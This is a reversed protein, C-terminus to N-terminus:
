QTTEVRDDYIGLFTLRGCWFLHLLLEIGTENGCWSGVIATMIVSRARLQLQGTMSELQISQRLALFNLMKHILRCNERRGTSGPQSKGGQTYVPCSEIWMCRPSDFFHYRRSDRSFLFTWVSSFAESTYYNDVQCWKQHIIHLYKFPNTSLALYLASVPLWSSFQVIFTTLWVATAEKYDLLLHGGQTLFDTSSSSCVYM